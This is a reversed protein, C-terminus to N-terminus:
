DDVDFAELKSKPKEPKSDGHKTLSITVFSLAVMLAAYPMLTWYGVYQLLYGSLIPTVIQAAMSFTYYYGTFKGVDSSKSIEVVMPYSNVNIFAWAIGVLAFIAMMVVRYGGFLTQGAAEEYLTVATANYAGDALLPQVAQALEEDTPVLGLEKKEATLQARWLEQQKAAVAEPELKYHAIQEDVRAVRAEQVAYAEEATRAAQVEDSVNDGLAGFGPMLGAALFAVALICVGIQIMRKRGIRSALMGVPLYSIVAAVTAIMVCLSATSLGIGWQVQVYKSFASTVANYGMFWLAVSCLILILSKRLDPALAAFGHKQKGAEDVPADTEGEEAAEADAVEKALKRERVTLVLVVVAVAMLFAVAYFLYSYDESGDAAKKVLVSTVGLTFVGGLAGMLNIVANAKSRLPKPTVDPMLAVAPSRYLGMAILLLALVVMFAAFTGGKIVASLVIMLCVALATGVIIFPTRRGLRFSCKDSLMGFIPLLFVALVNDLAMIYGAVSDPIHYTNMLVKPVVNDYLQWFACISLFALGVLFTRKYNLKPNM